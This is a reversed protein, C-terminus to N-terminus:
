PPAVEVRDMKEVYFSLFGRISECVPTPEFYTWGGNEVRKGGAAVDLHRWQGKWPCRGTGRGETVEARVDDPPVYFRDPLGKEHVVLARDTEVIAAGGLWVRL